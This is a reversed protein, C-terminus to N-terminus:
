LLCIGDSPPHVVLIEEKRTGNSRWRGEDAESRPLVRMRLGGAAYPANADHYHTGNTGTRTLLLNNNSENFYAGGPAATDRHTIPRM